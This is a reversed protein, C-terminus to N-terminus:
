ASIGTAAATAAGTGGDLDWTYGYRLTGDWVDSFAYTGQLTGAIYQNNDGAIANDQRYAGEVGLTFADNVAHRVALDGLFSWHANSRTVMHEPGAAGSLKTWSPNGEDGYSYTANFGFSPITSNGGAVAGRAPANDGLNNVVFTEWRFQDSFDYGLRAGTVNHPLLLRHISSFSVTSLEGRDVPDLGIGSNFRGVLLEAGNGVPINAAVYTQEIIFDGTGTGTAVRGATAAGAATIPMFDLDGRLRINEGFSKAYDVELQDLFFGFQETGLAAPVALGDALVGATADIYRGARARQWGTVTTVNGTIELMGSEEAQVPTGALLGAVAVAVALVAIKKM